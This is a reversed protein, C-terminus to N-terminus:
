AVFYGRTFLAICVIGILSSVAFYLKRYRDPLKELVSALLAFLPFLVLVYRPVSSFTGTFTPLFYSLSVYLLYSPRLKNLGYIILGLFGVAIVFELTVTFFLINTHNVFIMMKLYRYIVQHILIIRNITRQSGFAPQSTIFYIPNGTKLLQYKMFAVLGLPPLALLVTEPRFMKKFSKGFYLYLEIALAPWLFIGTIRTASAVLAALAALLFNGKRAFYFVLVSLLLFVSETYYAGFFFATPFFLLIFITLRVTKRKFDLLLLKYLFYLAAIFAVNAVLLGSILYNGNFGFIRALFPFVPFFAYVNDTHHPVAYWFKALDFYHTGDFNAWMSITQYWDFKWHLFTFAPKLPIFSVALLGVAILMLRWGLFLKITEKLNM